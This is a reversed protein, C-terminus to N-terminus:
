PQLLKSSFDSYVKTLKNHVGNLANSVRPDDPLGDSIVDLIDLAQSFELLAGEADWEKAEDEIQSNLMQSKSKEIPIQINM